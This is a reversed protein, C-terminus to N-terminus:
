GTLVAMLEGVAAAVVLTLLDLPTMAVVPEAEVWTEQPVVQVVRDMVLVVVQVVRDPSFIDAKVALRPVRFLLQRVVAALVVAVVVLERATMQVELM